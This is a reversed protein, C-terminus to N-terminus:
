GLAVDDGAEFAAADAVQVTNTRPEGDATLLTEDTLELPGGFTLHSKYSMGEFRTFWLKSQAAGVGRLVVRSSKVALSGEIKYLGAPVEVVGGALGAADLAAQFAATADATGTPDAGHDAVVDIKNASVDVALPTEGLHYGAYSFDHLFRGEPGTFAPTWDEPYLVSRWGAEGPLDSTGGTTGVDTDSGTVTVGGTSVDGTTESEGTTPLESGTTVTTGGSSGTGSSDGPVSSGSSGSSGTTAEGTEGGGGSNCAVLLLPALFM